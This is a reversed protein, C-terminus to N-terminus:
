AFVGESTTDDDNRENRVGLTVGAKEAVIKLKRRFENASWPAGSFECIIMPGTRKAPLVRNIEEMAMQSRSLRFEAAKKSRGDIIVRHLVMNEDLDSWRLGRIWKESGKIIDSKAPDDMPVWEGIIDMQKLKPVDFQLAVALAISDWGFQERATIRIARAQERTLRQSGGGEAPPFRMMGILTSLRICYGDNLQTAGFSCLLRIKGLMEHGMSVKGDSAFRDFLGQVNEATWGSIREGGIDKKLRKLSRLYNLRVSHKLEHVPSKEHIQYADILEGFTRNFAATSADPEASAAPTPSTSDPPAPNNFAAPKWAGSILSSELFLQKAAAIM